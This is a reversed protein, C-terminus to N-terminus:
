IQRGLFAHAPGGSGASGSVRHEALFDLVSQWLGAAWLDEHGAGEFTALQKPDGALQFLRRGHDVPIVRDATGHAILLPEDIRRVHERTLFQDHMLLGVPVWPYVAAAIDVAATYPAELVVAAVTREAAVFAAIGSGLSEGHVVINSSRASLWDFALLADAALAAESPSGESGPYGRYSPALLGFGSATVQKFRDARNSVNGGNGHFYLLTPQDPAAPAYWATLMAGDGAVLKVAQIGPLGVAEPEELIGGPHFVYSRQFLYLYTLASLYAVLLLLVALGM